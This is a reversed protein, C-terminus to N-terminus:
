DNRKKAEGEAFDGVDIELTRYMDWLNNALVKLIKERHMPSLKGLDLEIKMEKNM